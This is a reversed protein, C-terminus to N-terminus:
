LLVGGNMMQIRGASSSMLTIAGAATLGDSICVIFHSDSDANSVSQLKHVCDVTAIHRQHLFEHSHFCIHICFHLTTVVLLATAVVNAANSSWRSQKGGRGM